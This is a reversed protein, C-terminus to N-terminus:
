GNNLGDNAMKALWQEGYGVTLLPMIVTVMRLKPGVVVVVVILTDISTGKKQFGM